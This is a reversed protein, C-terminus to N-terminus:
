IAGRNSLEQRFRPLDVAALARVGHPQLDPMVVSSVKYGASQLRAALWAANNFATVTAEMAALADRMAADFAPRLSQAAEYSADAAVADLERTKSAIADRLITIEEDLAELASTPPVPDIRGGAILDKAREAASRRVRAGKARALLRARELTKTSHLAELAQLDELLVAYAPNENIPKIEKDVVAAPQFTKKM